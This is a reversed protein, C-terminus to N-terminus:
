PSELAMMLPAVNYLIGVSTSNPLPVVSPLVKGTVIWFTVMLLRTAPLLTTVICLPTDSTVMLFIVMPAIPVLSLKALRVPVVVLIVKSVRVKVPPPGVMFRPSPVKSKIKFPDVRVVTSLASFNVPVVPVKFLTCIMLLMAMVPLPVAGSTDISLAAVMLAKFILLLVLMSLKVSTAKSCPVPLLATLLKSNLVLVKLFILLETNLVTCAPFIVPKVIEPLM